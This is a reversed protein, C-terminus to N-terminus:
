RGKRQNGGHRKRHQQRKGAPQAERHEDGCDYWASAAKLPNLIDTDDQSFGAQSSIKVTRQLPFVEQCFAVSMGYGGGRGGEEQGDTSSI